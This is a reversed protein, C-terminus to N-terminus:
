RRLSVGSITLEGEVTATVTIGFQSVLDSIKEAIRYNYGQNDVMKWITLMEIFSILKNSFTELDILNQKLEYDCKMIYSELLFINIEKLIEEKQAITFRIDNNFKSLFDMNSIFQMIGEENYYQKLEQILGFLDANFYLSEMKEKGVILELLESMAQEFEYSELVDNGFYRKTLFQTYGENLGVGIGRGINPEQRFGTFLKGDSLLLILLVTLLWIPLM